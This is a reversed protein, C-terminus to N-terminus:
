RVERRKLDDMRRQQELSYMANRHGQNGNNCDMPPGKIPAMEFVKPQKTIKLIFLVWFNTLRNCGKVFAVLLNILMKYFLFM